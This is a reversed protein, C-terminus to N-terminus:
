CEDFHVSNFGGGEVGRLKILTMSQGIDIDDVVYIDDLKLFQAAHERDGKYGSAPHTFRLKDGPRVNFIDLKNM